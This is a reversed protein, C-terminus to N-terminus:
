WGCETVSIVYYRRRCRQNGTCLAGNESHGFIVLQFRFMASGVPLMQEWGLETAAMWMLEGACDLPFFRYTLPAPFGRFYETRTSHVM